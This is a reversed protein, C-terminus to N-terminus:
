FRTGFVFNFLQTQDEDEKVIAKAFDIRIPGFPSRWSLGIGASVRPTNADSVEPGTADLDWLNGVDVFAAGLFGLDDPLGLPFTTEVSGTYYMNGGLADGTTTDRPGIGSRDFGRFQRQGIFFRENIRVDRNDDWSWIHGGSGAFSLTWQQALPFFTAARLEHRLFRSDGGIGAVEQNFRVFHGETTEFRNNRTDWIFSHGVLSTSNSGEQDRIFRSADADVDAITIDEFRYQFNHRLHENVAYGMRLAGGQSERDFSSENSFDTVTRFIDFGASLERDLFFPETFGIDFQQREAAILANLRLEQGRGLLNSERIGFEALAGDVSSFGAGLSIEGTSQEQVDVNIITQDPSSGPQQTIEAREFFGLNRVRQESRALKSTSYADGEALRFERRVVEDLTRSNGNINIREVYVRPGPNIRYTIDIVGDAKRRDFKPKVDVFAFGKDGLRKVINDITDEVQDANYIAGTETTIDSTFDTESGSLSNDLNVEGFQYRQGEDITFTLFFEKGNPTIEAVSSKVQFDAYGQSVYFRRLLEKDYAVRDPDYKEDGSFPNWWREESTKVVDRLTADGYIENGVFDINTVRTEIGETIEFVLNVRNNELVIVKPDIQASYRGSRRYIQTLRQTASEVRPRTFISRAELDIEKRLDEDPIRRNGEFEVQNIIPNETVNVELVSGGSPAANPEVKVDAFFGTAYLAKMGRDIDYRNFPLGERIGLYSLITSREVRQNGSIVIKNVRFSDDTALLNNSFPANQAVALVPPLVLASIVVLLASLKPLV